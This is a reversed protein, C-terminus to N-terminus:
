TIICCDCSKCRLDAESKHEKTHKRKNRPILSELLAGNTSESDESVQNAGSYMIFNIIVDDDEYETFVDAFELTFVEGVKAQRTRLSELIPRKHFEMRLPFKRYLCFLMTSLYNQFNKVDGSLRYKITEGSLGLLEVSEVKGTMQVVPVNDKQRLESNLYDHLCQKMCQKLTTADQRTPIDVLGFVIYDQYGRFEKLKIGFKVIKTFILPFILLLLFIRTAM